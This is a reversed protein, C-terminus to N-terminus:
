LGFSNGDGEVRGLGSKAVFSVGVVFGMPIHRRLHEELVELLQLLDEFRM